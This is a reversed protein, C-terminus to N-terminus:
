FERERIIRTHTYSLLQAIVSYSPSLAVGILMRSKLNTIDSAPGGILSTSETSEPIHTADGAKLQHTPM